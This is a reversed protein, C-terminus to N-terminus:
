GGLDLALDSSRSRHEALIDEDGGRPSYSGDHRVDSCGSALRRGPRM